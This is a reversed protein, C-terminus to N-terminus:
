VCGAVGSTGTLIGLTFTLVNGVAITCVRTIGTNGGAIYGATSSITGPVTLTGSGLVALNGSLDVSIGLTTFDGTATSNTVKYKTGDSQDIGTQWLVGPTEYGISSDGSGTQIIYVSQANATSSTNSNVVIGRSTANFDQRAAWTNANGIAALTGSTPLTVGTTGTITFTTGFNGSITITSSANNAVGTGGLAPGVVTFGAALSGSALAGVTTLSSKTVGSALTDGTLGSAPVAAATISTNCGFGTNATWRVAESVGSCSTMALATPVAIGATANGLVTNAAQTALKALTVANNAITAAASGPGSATVDGTLATIGSAASCGSSSDSLDACALRAVTFAGGLSTQKVVQSTGGTASFDTTGAPWTITGSATTPPLQTHTGSVSGAMSLQGRVSGATGVSIASNPINVATVSTGTRVIQLAITAADNADNIARLSLTGSGVIIDWLKGNAVDDTKSLAIAPQTSSVYVGSNFGGGVATFTNIDGWSNRINTGPLATFTGPTGAATNIWGPAGGAQTNIILDGIRTPTTTGVAAVVSSASYSSVCQRVDGASVASGIGNICAAHELANAAPDWQQVNFSNQNKSDGSVERFYRGTGNQGRMNRVNFANGSVYGTWSIGDANTAGIELLDLNFINASIATTVSKLYVHAIIPNFSQGLNFTNADIGNTGTANTELYFNYNNSYATITFTNETMRDPATLPALYVGKDFYVARGVFINSKVACSVLIGQGAPAVAQFGQLGGINFQTSPTDVTPGAPSVLQCYNVTLLAANTANAAVLTAQPGWVGYKVTPLAGPTVLYAGPALYLPARAANAANIANTLATTTNTLGTPDASYKITANIYGSVPLSGLARDFYQIITCDTAPSQTAGPNCLVSGSRIQPLQQAAAPAVLLLLIAITRFLYTM